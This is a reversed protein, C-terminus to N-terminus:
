AVSGSLMHKCEDVEKHRKIMVVLNCYHVLAAAIVCLHFLQHSHAYIDFLGPCFREPIRLVYLLGGGTYLVAMLALGILFTWYPEVPGKELFIQLTPVAGYFGFSVFVAFRLPRYTPKNFTRWLSFVICAACLLSIVSIHLTRYFPRCYFCYYYAPINSGTILLAIGSYDLRSFLVYFKESHNAFTHYTTSCFLCIMASLFFLFVIAQENAPLDSITVSEEFLHTISDRLLFVSITLGLFLVFGILHTWINWTQTHLSFITKLCATVSHMPPRHHSLLFQNDKLWAPLRDFSVLKRAIDPVMNTILDPTCSGSSTSSSTENRKEERSNQTDRKRTTDMNQSFITDVFSRKAKSKSCQFCYYINQHLRSRM